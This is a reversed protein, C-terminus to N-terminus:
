QPLSHPYPLIRVGNVVQGWGDKAGGGGRGDTSLLRASVVGTFLTLVIMGVSGALTILYSGALAPKERGADGEDLDDETRHSTETM